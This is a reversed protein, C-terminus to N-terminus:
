EYRSAKAQIIAWNITFLVGFVLMYSIILQVVTIADVYVGTFTYGDTVAGYVQDWSYSLPFYIVPMLAISLIAIGLVWGIGQTDKVFRRIKM